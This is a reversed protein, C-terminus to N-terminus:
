YKTYSGRANILAQCRERMSLVLRTIAAQPINQGDQIAAHRLHAVTQPAPVRAYIRRKLEDWINEIPAMDSSIAPWDLVNINSTALFNRTHIATHPRANDQQLTGRGQIQQNMFPVVVPALVDQVYTQANFKRNFFVLNTGGFQTIGAWVHVSRGGWRNFQQVCAENNRDGRCRWVRARGDARSLLIQREDTFLVGSWQRRTFRVHARAWQLREQKHRRTLIAAKKPRCCKLSAEKLRNM